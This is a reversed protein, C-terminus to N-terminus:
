ALTLLDQEVALIYCGLQNWGNCFQKDVIMNYPLYKNLCKNQHLIVNGPEGFIPQLQAPYSSREYRTDYESLDTITM